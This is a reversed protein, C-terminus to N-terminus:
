HQPLMIRVRVITARNSGAASAHEPLSVAGVSAPASNAVAHEVGFGFIVALGVTTVRAGPVVPVALNTAALLQVVLRTPHVRVLERVPATVLTAAGLRDERGVSLGPWDTM